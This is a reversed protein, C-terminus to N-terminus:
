WFMNRWNIVQFSSKRKIGSSKDVGFFIALCCFLDSYIIIILQMLPFGLHTPLFYITFKMCDVKSLFINALVFPKILFFINSVLKFFFFNYSLKLGSFIYILCWSKQSWHKPWLPIMLWYIQRIICSQYFCIHSVCLSFSINRYIM